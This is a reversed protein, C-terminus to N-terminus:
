EYRARKSWGGEDEEEDEKGADFTVESAEAFRKAAELNRQM